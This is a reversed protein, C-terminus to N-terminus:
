TRVFAKLVSEETIKSSDFIWNQVTDEWHVTVKGDSGCTKARYAFDRNQSIKFLDGDIKNANLSAYDLYDKFFPMSQVALAIEAVTNGPSM